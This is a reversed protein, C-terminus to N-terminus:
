ALLVYSSSTAAKSRSYSRYAFAFACLLCSGLTFALAHKANLEVTLTWTLAPKADLEDDDAPDEELTELMDPSAELLEISTAKAAHKHKKSHEAVLRPYQKKARELLDVGMQKFVEVIDIQTWGDVVRNNEVRFHCGFRMQVVKGTAPQGLWTGTHKAKIHYLVGCYNSECVFKNVTLEPKSFARHLPRLFHRTYDRRSRAHGIGAPGCWMMDHSWWKASHKQEVFDEHIMATVVVRANDAAEKTAYQDDPAPIGDMARPPLYDIGNPMPAEPLVAYGGQELIGIVDVMCWNYWIM